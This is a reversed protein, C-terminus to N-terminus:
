VGRASSEVGSHVIGVVFHVLGDGINHLKDGNKQWFYM